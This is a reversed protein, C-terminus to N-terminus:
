VMAEVEQEQEVAFPDGDDIPFLLKEIIAYQDGDANVFWWTDALWACLEVPMERAYPGSVITGTRLCPSQGCNFEPPSWGIWVRVGPGLTSM